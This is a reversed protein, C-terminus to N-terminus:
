EGASYYIFGANAYASLLGINYKAESHLKIAEEISEKAEKHKGKESLKTSYIDLADALISKYQYERARDVANKIYILSKNLDQETTGMIYNGYSYASHTNYKEALEIAKLAWKRAEPFNDTKNTYIALNAALNAIITTDEIEELIEYGKQYYKIADEYNENTGVITALNNYAYALRLPNDQTEEVKITLLTYKTANEYDGARYYNAGLSNLIKPYASNPDNKDTLKYAKKTYFHSSDYQSRVDFYYGLQFYLYDMYSVKNKKGYEIAKLYLHKCDKGPIEFCKEGEDFLVQVEQDVIPKTNYKIQAFFLLHTFLLLITLFIKMLNM